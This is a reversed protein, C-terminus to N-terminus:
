FKISLIVERPHSTFIHKNLWEESCLPVLLNFFVLIGMNQALNFILGGKAKDEDSKFL